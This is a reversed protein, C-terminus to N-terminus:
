QVGPLGERIENLFEGVTLSEHFPEVEDMASPYIITTTRGNPLPVEKRMLSTGNRIPSAQAVFLRFIRVMQRAATAGIVDVLPQSPEAEHLAGFGTCSAVVSEELKKVM